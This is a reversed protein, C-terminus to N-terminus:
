RLQRREPHLGRRYILRGACATLEGSGPRSPCGGAVPLRSLGCSSRHRTPRPQSQSPMSHLDLLVVHGHQQRRMALERHLRLHYPVYFYEIRHLAEELSIKGAYIEIQDGIVRPVTGLGGAVRLSRTNADVPLVGSILRPDLEFPERNLDVFSRPLMARMMPVGEAVAPMFLEDVYLDSARRLTQQPLQSRELFSPPFFEGSHPSNLFIPVEMADLSAELSEIVFIGEEPMEPLGGGSVAM